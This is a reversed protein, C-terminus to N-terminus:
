FLFNICYFLYFIQLCIRLWISALDIIRESSLINYWLYVDQNQCTIFLLQFYAASVFSFTLFKIWRIDRCFNRFFFDIIKLLAYIQGEIIISFLICWANTYAAKKSVYWCWSNRLALLGSIFWFAELCGRTRDHLWCTLSRLRMWEMRFSDRITNLSVIIM